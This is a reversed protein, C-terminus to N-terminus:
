SSKSADRQWVRHLRSQGLKNSGSMRQLVLSGAALVDGVLRTRYRWIWRPMQRYCKIKEMPAVPARRIADLYRFFWEWHFLQNRLRGKNTPDFWVGRGERDPNALQSNTEHIRNVFLREPVECIKGRLAMEALMLLDAGIYTGLVRTQKLASARMLGFAAECGSTENYNNHYEKFREHPKLSAVNSKVPSALDDVPRGEEDIYRSRSHCIAVSADGELIPVCRELYTPMLLDDAAAHKIYKGIALATVNNYNWAAGRNEPYRYYRIRSDAAAYQRCIEETADTSGNDSIILEFDTYTQALLSDLTERLYREGNYVPLGMSVLPPNKEM